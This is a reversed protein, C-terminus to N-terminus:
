IWGLRGRSSRELTLKGDFACHISERYALGGPRTYGCGGDDCSRDSMIVIETNDKLM